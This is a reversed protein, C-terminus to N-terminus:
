KVRLVLKGRAHRTRVKALAALAEDFPYVREIVVRKTGRAIETMLRALEDQVDTDHPVVQTHVGRVPTVLDGSVTVLRGGDKVTRLSDTAIGPQVAIAADVGGPVWRRVQGPWDPDRYDVTAEAGLSRLHDHNPASASAGVRWGRARAVQVALTGVAGSGGAVFLSGGAPPHGLANVARLATNGAVPVAAAEVSGLDAPIPVILSNARVAAYEAWTGGKPQMASVFAIRDGPRHARVACGVQEVVGAAEIGIPLPYTADSPLFYADHVGVGVAEVRVLLEDDDIQPVAVEAPEIEDADARVKVFARM